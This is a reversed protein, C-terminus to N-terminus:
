RWDNTSFFALAIKESIAKSISELFFEVMKRKNGKTQLESYTFRKKVIFEKGNLKFYAVFVEGDFDVQFSTITGELINDKIEIREIVQNRAKEEMERLLRISEDTPAKRETVEVKSYKHTEGGTRIITRDFMKIRRSEQYSRTNRLDIM